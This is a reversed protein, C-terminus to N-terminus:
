APPTYEGGQSKAPDLGDVRSTLHQVHLRRRETEHEIQAALQRTRAQEAEFRAQLVDLRRQCDAESRAATAELVEVRTQLKLKEADFALKDRATRYAFYGSAITGVMMIAGGIWGGVALTTSGADLTEAWMM